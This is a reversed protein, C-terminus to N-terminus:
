RLVNVKSPAQVCIRYRELMRNLDDFTVLGDGDIDLGPPCDIALAGQRCEGGSKFLLDKWRNMDDGNFKGDHNLDWAAVYCVPPVVPVPGPETAQAVRAAVAGLVVVCVVIMAVLALRRTM